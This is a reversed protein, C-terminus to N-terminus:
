PIIHQHTAGNEPEKTMAFRGLGETARVGAAREGLATLGLRLLRTLRERPEAAREGGAV